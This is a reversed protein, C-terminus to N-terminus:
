SDVLCFCARHSCSIMVGLAMGITLVEGEPEDEDDGSQWALVGTTGITTTSGDWGVRSDIM